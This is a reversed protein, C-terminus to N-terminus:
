EQRRAEVRALLLNARRAARLQNLDSLEDVLVVDVVFGDVVGLQYPARVGRWVGAVCVRWVCGGCVRWVGAVGRACWAVGRWM